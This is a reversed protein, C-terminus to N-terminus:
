WGRVARMSLVFGAATILQTRRDAVRRRHLTVGMEAALEDVLRGPLTRVVAAAQDHTDAARLQAALATLDM